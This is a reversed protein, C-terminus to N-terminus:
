DITTNKIKDDVQKFKGKSTKGLNSIALFAVLILVVVIVIYETVTQGEENKIFNMLKNM